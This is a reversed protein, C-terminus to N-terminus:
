HFNELLLISTIDRDLMSYLLWRGDPSIALGPVWALPDADVVGIQTTRRTAFSFFKLPRPASSGENSVFCIGDTTMTWSRWQGARALEPVPREEGGSVPV